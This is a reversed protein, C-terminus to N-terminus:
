INKLFRCSKKLSARRMSRIKAAVGCRSDATWSSYPSQRQPDDAVRGAVIKAQRLAIIVVEVEFVVRRVGIGHGRDADM